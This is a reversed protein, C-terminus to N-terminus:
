GTITTFRWIVLPCAEEVVSVFGNHIQRATQEDAMRRILRATCTDWAEGLGLGFGQIGDVVDCLLVSDVSGHLFPIHSKDVVHGDQMPSLCEDIIRGILPVKDADPKIILSLTPVKRIWQAQSPGSYEIVLVALFV